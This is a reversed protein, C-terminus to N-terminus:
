LAAHSGTGVEGFARGRDPRGYSDEQNLVIGDAHLDDARIQPADGVGLDVEVAGGRERVGKRYEGLHVDVEHDAVEM